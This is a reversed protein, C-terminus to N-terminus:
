HVNPIVGEVKFTSGAALTIDLWASAVIISLAGIILIKGNPIHWDKLLGVTAAAVAAAKPTSVGIGQIGTVVAGHAGPDGVTRIPPFGANFLEQLSVQIHPPIM